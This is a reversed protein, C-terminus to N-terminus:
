LLQRECFGGRDVFWGVGRSAKWLACFAVREADGMKAENPKRSKGSKGARIESEAKVEIQLKGHRQERPM